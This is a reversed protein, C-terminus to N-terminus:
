GSSYHLSVLLDDDKLQQNLQYETMMQHYVVMKVENM